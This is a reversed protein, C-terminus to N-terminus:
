SWDILKQTVAYRFLDRNSSLHLKQMLRTRHTSVTKPSVDLALAIEKMARGALIMEMVEIERPSLRARADVSVAHPANAPTEQTECPLVMTAILVSGDLRTATVTAQLRLLSADRRLATFQYNRPAPEERLRLRSFTMLRPADENAVILSMHRGRLQAPSDYGLMETYSRNVYAIEEANEILFGADGDDVVARLWIPEFARRELKEYTRAATTVIM